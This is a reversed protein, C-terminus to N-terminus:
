NLAQFILLHIEPNKLVWPFGSNGELGLSVLIDNFNGQYSVCHCSMKATQISVHVGLSQIVIFHAM